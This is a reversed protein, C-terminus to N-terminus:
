VARLTPPPFPLAHLRLSTMLLPHPHLWSPKQHSFSKHLAFQTKPLIKKQVSHYSHLGLVNQTSNAVVADSSVDQSPSVRKWVCALTPSKRGSACWAPRQSPSSRSALTVGSASRLTQPQTLCPDLLLIVAHPRAFAEINGTLGDESITIRGSTHIDKAPPPTDHTHKAKVAKATPM